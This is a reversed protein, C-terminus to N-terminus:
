SVLRLNQSTVLDRDAIYVVDGRDLLKKLEDIDMAGVGAKRASLCEPAGAASANEYRSFSSGDLFL